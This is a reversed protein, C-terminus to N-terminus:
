EEKLVVYKQLGLAELPAYDEYSTVAPDPIQIAKMADTMDPRNKLSLFARQLSAQVSPPVRPHAAVPHAYVQPTEFLVRLRSQVDPSEKELTHRIAGGAIAQGGLVHRYVNSHTKVYKATFHIHADETLLARLYLSAGFANPAPFALTAGELQSLKTIPSDKRVVLIGSLRLHDDRILPKYGAAKKAMVIHYPNLYVIDPVGALFASEFDPISSFSMLELKLGTINSIERLVPTWSKYIDEPPFQPVIAVTLAPAAQALWSACALLVALLSRCLRQM